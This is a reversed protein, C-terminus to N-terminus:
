RAAGARGRREALVRWALGPNNTILGGIVWNLIALGLGEGCTLGDFCVEGLADFVTIAM